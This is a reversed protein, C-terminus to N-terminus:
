YDLWEKFEKVKERSVLIDQDQCNLLLIKLRSNSYSFVEKISELSCIYKRNLRFFIQPDLLQQVEDLTYDVISKQGNNTQLYTAKHESWMFAIDSVNIAKIREGVKVMFRKKYEKLGGDLLNKISTLDISHSNAHINRFKHLATELEAENIPKLLYDISNLKFAKIAYEDYATCFIIPKDTSTKEFITFSLGDALQIDMFFLNPHEHTELWAVSSKVSDLVALIECNPEYKKILKILREQAPLEDEIIVIKM